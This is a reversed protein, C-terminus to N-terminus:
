KIDEAKEGGPPRSWEHQQADTAWDATMLPIDQAHAAKYLDGNCLM